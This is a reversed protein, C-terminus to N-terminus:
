ASRQDLAQAVPGWAATANAAFDRVVALTNGWLHCLPAQLADDISSPAPLQNEIALARALALVADLLAPRAEEAFGTDGLVRAM